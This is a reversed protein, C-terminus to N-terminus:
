RPPPPDFCDISPSIDSGDSLEMKTSGNFIDMINLALNTGKWAIWISSRFTVIAPSHTSLEDLVRKSSPDLVNMVNLNENGSGKWAIWLFDGRGTISPFTDSKENLVLKSTPDFVNMVNLDDNNYGRWAIWLGTPLLAISPSSESTENLVVKSSPNSVDMVNLKDDDIGTWAIWLSSGSSVISPSHESFEDLTKLSGGNFIDVIHLKDEDEGRWAMWFSGNSVAISPSDTSTYGFSLKTDPRFVNMARLNDLQNWNIWLNNIDFVTNRANIRGYGMERNWTGNPHGATNSYPVTGVKDANREIIERVQTNTLTPSISRVLAALGAVHPTAASTGNFFRHYNTDPFQGPPPTSPPVVNNYGNAGQRDTTPIRVGPAVVSMEAGRHSGWNEGDPSTLTKRNDIQDSAGCAMVFPNRAPYYIMDLSDNGAIACMVVDNNFASQIASNMLAYNAGALDMHWSMSIVKAGFASAFNIGIVIQADTLNQFALPLISCSGAVGAVGQANNFTAAAIGACATGHNLDAIDAPSGDPIGTGLNMGSSAFQLDPHTLDCGSDLICIMVSSNGTVLNWATIGPGGAQISTMNWQSSFLTDDPILGMPHIMPMNEFLVDHVFPIDNILIDKIQYANKHAIDTVIYYHYGSLYKSKEPVEEMNYKALTQSLENAKDDFNPAYKILLINPFPCFLEKRENEKSHPQYVPGLWDLDEGFVEQLRDLNEQNAPNGTSSRIWFLKDSHSIVEMSRVENSRQGDKSEELVFETRQLTNRIEEITHSKKTAILLRTRDIVIRSVSSVKLEEPFANM